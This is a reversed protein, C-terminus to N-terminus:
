SASEGELTAVFPDAADALCSLLRQYLQPRTRSLSKFDDQDLVILDCTSVATATEGQEGTLLSRAGWFEGEGLNVPDIEPRDVDRIEVDGSGIMFLAGPKEGDVAIVSGPPATRSRLVTLVDAIEQPNLISFVSVRAAM